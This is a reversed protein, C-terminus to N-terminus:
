ESREPRGCGSIREPRHFLTFGRIFTLGPGRVRVAQAPEQWGAPLLGLLDLVFRPASLIASLCGPASNVPELVLASNFDIVAVGPLVRRLEAAEAYVKGDKILVAPGHLGLMFVLFQFATQLVEQLSNVPLLAQTSMIFLCTLFFFLFEFYSYIPISNFVVKRMILLSPLLVLMVPVGIWSVVRIPWLLWRPPRGPNEGVMAAGGNQNGRNREKSQMLM